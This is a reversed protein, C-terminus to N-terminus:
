TGGEEEEDDEEEKGRKKQKYIVYKIRSSSRSVDGGLGWFWWVGVGRCLQRMGHSTVNDNCKM